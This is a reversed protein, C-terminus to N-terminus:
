QQNFLTKQEKQEQALKNIWISETKKTGVGQTRHEKDYRKWEAFLDDYLDCGYGSIVAMSDISQLKEALDIHDQMSYDHKYKHKANRTKMVYPPDLYLLTEPDDQADIVELADRNELKVEKFRNCFAPIQQPYNNWADVETSHAKRCSARFGSRHSIANSGWGMFARVITKRAKEIPGDGDNEGDNQYSRNFETRSFPTLEIKRKLKQAQNPDRLVEFVNVVEDNLDNYVEHYSPHKRLLVAAGGGFPEVYNKHRPFHSIIWPALRFKSGHYHMVPRRIENTLNSM